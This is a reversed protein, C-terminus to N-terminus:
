WVKCKKEPNMNSGKKCHFDRAFEKLNSMPGLVRFKSPAHTDTTIAFKVNEPRQVACWSNAASLWFM